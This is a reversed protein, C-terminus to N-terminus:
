AKNSVHHSCVVLPIVIRGTNEHPHRYPVQKTVANEFEDRCASSSFYNESHMQLIVAAHEMWEFYLDSWYRGPECVVVSGM